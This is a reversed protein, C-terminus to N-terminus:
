KWFDLTCQHKLNYIIRSKKNWGKIKTRSEAFKVANDISEFKLPKNEFAHRVTERIVWVGLPIRYEPTIERYILVKAQRKRLKLHEVVSLRAAYYAGTINKAYNKRGEYPEYDEGMTYSTPSYLSGRLWTEIMEYEWIGPILFIHFNNGMFSNAYYEVSGIKEYDKIEKIIREAILSDVATIGWRTPVFKRERGLLGATLIRQIYDVPFGYNYLEIVADNAKIKEDVINDVKRPVVPNGVIDIKTPEVRPGTPHFFIDLSPGGSIKRIWVETDLPKESIAIDQSAEVIKGNLKKVNVMRATRILTSTRSIIYDLSKGYLNATLSVIQSDENESILPGAFVRPYGHRGVFISPPSLGFISDGTIKLRPLYDKVSELIPCKPLGCWLRGKCRACLEGFM